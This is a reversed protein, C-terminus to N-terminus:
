AHGQNASEGASFDADLHAVEAPPNISVDARGSVCSDAGNAPEHPAHPSEDGKLRALLSASPSIAEQKMFVTQVDPIPFDANGLLANLQSGIVWLLQSIYTLQDNADFGM